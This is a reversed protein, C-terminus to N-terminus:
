VVKMVELESTNKIEKRISSQNISINDEDPIEINYNQYTNDKESLDQLM